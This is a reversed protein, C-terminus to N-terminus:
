DTATVVFDLVLRLSLHFVQIVITAFLVRIMTGIVKENSMFGVPHTKPNTGKIGDADFHCTICTPDAGNVDHCSMCREIDRKALTAHDGGGSGVGLTKFNM